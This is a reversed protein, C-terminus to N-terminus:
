CTPTYAKKQKPMYIYNFSGKVHNDDDDDDNKQKFFLTHVKSLVDYVGINSGCVEYLLGICSNRQINLSSSTVWYTHICAHM